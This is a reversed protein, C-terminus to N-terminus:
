WHLAPEAPSLDYGVVYAERRRFPPTGEFTLLSEKLMPRVLDDAQATPEDPRPKHRREFRDPDLLGMFLQFDEDKGNHPTATLLLLHNTHDRVAVALDRRATSKVEGGFIHARSSTHRASSSSIGTPHRSCVLRSSRSVPSSTLGLYQSDGEFPGGGDLADIRDRTLLDFRLDFKEAPESQWQEVLCGPSVVLCRKLVGRVMLERILLGTMITKGAGPDDALLFRLPQRPLVEDYVATIQHPLVRIDTSVVALFPDFLYGLNIRKAEM